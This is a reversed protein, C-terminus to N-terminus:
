GNAGLARFGFMMYDKQYAARVAEEVSDDYIKSLLVPANEVAPMVPPSERGVQAAVQQLGLELQDERLVFDPVLVQALGHLVETQSAWSADVRLGTQGGLNGRVFNAFAIFAARHQEAGYNHDPADEPIPLDYNERLTQRMEWFTEDGHDLIHRVFAEHLRAVPHRIVTFSRHGPNKRKWQRLTKQTFAGILHEEEVGDLAALWSRVRQEPGAKIPQYLLPATAGAVYSPVAAARRPEFNPTRSLDFRDIRAIADQMEGFNEVKDSLPAPNQVKTRKTTAEKKHEVGLFAALGDLVELDRVDEYAIYFGTQGTTQMGRLLRLQFQQLQDIHDEFERREFRIKASKANKMDNLRWQGTASAIKLSVYSEVPNRTLIIKACRPDPLIHELVRPDHDHFFRFGPLGDTNVRMQDLLQLPDDQRMQMTVGMMETKKAGGIFHPNFVEGHCKLGPYENINEELFNSGTRMEAFMVFYDFRSAM